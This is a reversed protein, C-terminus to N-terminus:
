GAEALDVRLRNIFGWTPHVGLGHFLIVAKKGPKAPKTYVALFKIQNNPNILWLPEGVFIDDITQEAWRKERALDSTSSGAVVATAVIMLTATILAQYIPRRWKAM